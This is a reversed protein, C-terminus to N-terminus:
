CEAVAVSLGGRATERYEAKMDLGTARMTAVVQDFSVRHRGDGALALRAAAIAKTTGIANREICPVQVLGGVPDCTLGLNHEMAIEAANEVQEPTGGLVECLGAAAMACASGIEGQCGVEAGSLSAARRIVLGFAGATLLFRVTDADARPGDGGAVFRRHYYLVAPVIGAAGNTPATVVRGGAANEENVALAAAAAWDLARLADRGGAAVAAGALSDRLQRARRRVRLGGPLTGDARWGREICDAMVRWRALLGARVQRVGHRAAENVLMVDSIRLEHEACRALLDAASSFSYPGDGRAAREGAGAGDRDPGAAEGGPAADDVIAGGGVSYYTRTLLVAGSTAYATFRLANPHRPLPDPERRLDHDLDFAVEHVGLLRVRRHARVALARAPVDDPDCDHPRLGELGALVAADTGHGTGTLALSGYLTVEIRAAARVEGADAGVLEVANAGVEEALHEAFRRAARMPGVTHSSSPGLGISFLDLVSPTGLATGPPM